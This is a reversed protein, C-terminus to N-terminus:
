PLVDGDAHPAQILNLRKHAANIAHRMARLELRIARKGSGAPNWLQAYSNGQAKFRTGQVKIAM